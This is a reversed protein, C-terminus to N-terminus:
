EQVPRRAALTTDDQGAGRGRIKIQILVTNVWSADHPM